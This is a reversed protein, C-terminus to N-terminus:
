NSHPDLSDISFFTNQSGILHGNRADIIAMGPQDQKNYSRLYLYPRNGWWLGSGPNKAYRWLPQGDTGYAVTTSVHQTVVLNGLVIAASAKPDLMKAQWTHPDILELGAPTLTDHESGDARVTVQTDTGTLALQGSALLHAERETRSLPEKLSRTTFSTTHALTHYSVARNALDIMAVPSGGVVVYAIHGDPNVALGPTAGRAVMVGREHTSIAGAEIKSLVVRRAQGNAQVLLLQASGLRGTPQLLLVVQSGAQKADVLQGGLRTRPSVHRSPLDVIQYSGRWLVVASGRTLWFVGVPSSSSVASPWSPDSGVPISETVRRSNLVLLRLMDVRGDAVYAFERRDPSFAWSLVAGLGTREGLPTLTKPEVRALAGERGGLGSWYIVYVPAGTRGVLDAGGARARSAGDAVGSGVVVVLSVSLAAVVL